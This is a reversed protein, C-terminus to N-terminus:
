VEGREADDLVKRFTQMDPDKDSLAQLPNNKQRKLLIARIEKEEERDLFHYFDAALELLDQFDEEKQLLPIVQNVVQSFLMRDGTNILFTGIELSLALEPEEQLQEVLRRLIRKADGLDRLAFLRVKLFDFWKVDSIYEYFNDLLESAYIDDKADIQDSIYDYIFSELDHACYSAVTAFVEKPDGGQDAGEDLIDELDSIADQLLEEDKLEARDYLDILHDLEHCFLSLSQKKPLLRRWLEFLLLYAQDRGEEQAEDLWVCDVIEEPSDCSDAYLVFTESTLPIKLTKLRKFIEETSLKRYDEVQWPKVQISSDELWNSRLLHYLARDQIEM